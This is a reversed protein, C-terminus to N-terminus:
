RKSVRMTNTGIGSFNEKLINVRKRDLRCRMRETKVIIIEMFDSKVEM